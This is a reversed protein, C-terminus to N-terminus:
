HPIEQLPDTHRLEPSRHTQSHKKKNKTPQYDDILIQKSNKAVRAIFNDEETNSCKSDGADPRVDPKVDLPMNTQIIPKIDPPIMADM